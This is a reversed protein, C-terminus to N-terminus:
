REQLTEDVIDGLRRLRPLALDALATTKDAMPLTCSWVARGALFGNAGARVAQRVAGPFLDPEVGSSLIVWPMAIADDLRRCADYLERDSGQGSRPMEGKYLDAGTDGLERAAALIASEKDFGSGRRSPRVVPEIIALLGALRCRRVFEAVMEARTEAPEDERWLVLLKLAVGGLARVAVPDISEDITVTDVPIGNGPHFSDAAVILGCGPNVANADVVAQLSFDRDVLVGSALPSLTRTAAVKFETLASDPVPTPAGSAAFMLRLAERQDVALMALGGTPRAIEALTYPAIISSTSV